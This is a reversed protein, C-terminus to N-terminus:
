VAGAASLVAQKGNEAESEIAQIGTKVDQVGEQVVRQVATEVKDFESVVVAEAEVVDERIKNYMDLFDTEMSRAINGESSAVADKSRQPSTLLFNAMVHAGIYVIAVLLAAYLFWGYFIINKLWGLM